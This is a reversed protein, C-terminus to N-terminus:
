TPRAVIYAKWGLDKYSRIIAGSKGLLNVQYGASSFSNFVIEGAEPGHIELFVVPKIESLMKQMGSFALTEGGEIDMKVVKPALNGEVFIFEDLSIGNVDITQTLKAYDRGVSGEAKGTSDSLGRYFKVPKRSDIIALPVVQVQDQLNNIQLNSNLRQVNEPLAEFAYVRGSNAIRSAIFVTLYGINAGVDYVVSSRKVVNGLQAILEPEYTGLWYDKETSLDLYFRKGKLGGSTVLVEQLEATSILNLSSRIFKALPTVKYVAKKFSLPTIRSVWATFSLFYGSM